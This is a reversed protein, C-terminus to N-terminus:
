AGILDGANWDLIATASRRTTAPFLTLRYPRGLMGIGQCVQEIKLSTVRGEPLHVSEALASTPWDPAIEEPTTPIALAMM